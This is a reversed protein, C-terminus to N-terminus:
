HLTDLNGAQDSCREQLGLNLGCFRNITVGRTFTKTEVVEGVDYEKDGDKDAFFMYQNLNNQDFYIGYGLNFKDGTGTTYERVGLSNIQAQRLNLALEYIQTKLALRDSWKSQQIVLATTIITFISMVVLLEVLTFGSKVKDKNFFKLFYNKLYKYKSYILM